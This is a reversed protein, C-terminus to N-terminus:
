SLITTLLEIFKHPLIFATGDHAPPPTWQARLKLGTQLEKARHGQQGTSVTHLISGPGWTERKDKEGGNETARKAEGKEKKRGWGREREEDQGEQRGEGSWQIYHRWSSSVRTTIKKGGGTGRPGLYARTLFVFPNGTRVRGRERFIRRGTSDSSGGNRSLGRFRARLIGDPLIIQLAFKYVGQTVSLIKRRWARISFSRSSFDFTCLM